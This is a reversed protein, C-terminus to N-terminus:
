EWSLNYRWNGDGSQYSQLLSVGEALSPARASVHEVGNEMYRASLGDEPKLSGSLEIWNKEDIKLVVFTIDSWKLGQVTKKITDGDPHQSAVRESRENPELVELKMTKGQAPKKEFQVPVSPKSESQSGVFVLILILVLMRLCKM